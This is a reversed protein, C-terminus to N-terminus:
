LCCQSQSATGNQWSLKSLLLKLGLPPIRLKAHFAACLLTLRLLRQLVPVADCPLLLVYQWPQLVGRSLGLLSSGNSCRLFLAQRVSRCYCRRSCSRLCCLEAGSLRLLFAIRFICGLPQTPEAIEVLPLIQRWPHHLPLVDNRVLQPLSLPPLQQTPEVDDSLLFLFMRSLSSICFRTTM